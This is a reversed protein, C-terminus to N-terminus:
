RGPAERRGGTSLWGEPPRDAGAPQPAFQDYVVDTSAVVPSKTSGKKLLQYGDRVLWPEGRRHRCRPVATRRPEQVALFRPM